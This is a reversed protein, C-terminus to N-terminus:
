TIDEQRRRAEESMVYITSVQEQEEDKNREYISHRMINCACALRHYCDM